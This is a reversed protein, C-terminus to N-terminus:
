GLQLFEERVAALARRYEDRGHVYALAVLVELAAALSDEMASHFLTTVAWDQPSQEYEGDPPVPVSTRAPQAQALVSWVYGHDDFPAPVREGRRLAAIAPAIQPLGILGARELSRLSAWAAVQRHTTEDADALAFELDPDLRSIIALYLGKNLTARLRENPTREGWRQRAREALQEAKAREDDQREQETLTRRARHWYAARKGTQKVIRGPAPDAPWFQLLYCDPPEEVTDAEEMRRISYRVRYNRHPLTFEFTDGDLGVLLARDALPTFSVEVIEDWTGDVAPELDHLEVRFPIWGTHTGTTLVLVGRVASGCLGNSEDAWPADHDHNQEIPHRDDVTIVSASGYTVFVRPEDLLVRM